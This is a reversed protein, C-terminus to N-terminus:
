KSTAGCWQHRAGAVKIPVDSFIIVEAFDLHKLCEEVAMGTLEHAVTDVAILTVDALHLM